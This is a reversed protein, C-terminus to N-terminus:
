FSAYALPPYNSVFRRHTSENDHKRQWHEGGVLRRGKDEVDLDFPHAVMPALDMRAQRAIGRVERITPAIGFRKPLRHGRGAPVHLELAEPRPSIRERNKM